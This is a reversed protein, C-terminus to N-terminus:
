GICMCAYRYEAVSSSRVRHETYVHVYPGWGLYCEWTEMKCQEYRKALLPSSATVEEDVKNMSSRRTDGPVGYVSRDAVSFRSGYSTGYM